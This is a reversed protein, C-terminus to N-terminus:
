TDARRACTLEILAGEAVEKVGLIALVPGGDPGQRLRDKATITRTLSDSRLTYRTGIEAMVEGSRLRESDSVDRRSAWRTCVAVEAGPRRQLGDSVAPGARLITVRTAFRLQRAM